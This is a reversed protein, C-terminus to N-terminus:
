VLAESVQDRHLIPEISQSQLLLPPSTRNPYRSDGEDPSYSPPIYSPDFPQKLITEGVEFQAPIEQLLDSTDCFEEEEEEDDETDGHYGNGNLQAKGNIPISIM